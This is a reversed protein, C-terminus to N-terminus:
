QLRGDHAAELCQLAGLEREVLESLEAVTDCSGSMSLHEIEDGPLPLGPGEFAMGVFFYAVLEGREARDAWERLELAIERNIIEDM